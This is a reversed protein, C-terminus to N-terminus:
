NHIRAESMAAATAAMIRPLLSQLQAQTMSVTKQTLVPMKSIFTQGVPSQYFQILSDVEEQEYTNRYLQIYMPKVREWSLEERLLEAFKPLLTDIFKQQDTSLSRDQLSHKIGQRMIDVVTGQLSELTSQVQSVDLLKTVSQESAPAAGANTGILFAAVTTLLLRILNM